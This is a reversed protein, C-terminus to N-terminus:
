VLLRGRLDVEAATRRADAAIKARDAATLGGERRYVILGIATQGSAFRERQLGAVETSQADDPLFSEFRDDVEDQLKGGLPVFVFLAVIWLVPVVWKTRRGTVFSALGRM